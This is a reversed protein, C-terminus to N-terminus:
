TISLKLYIHLMETFANRFVDNGMIVNQPQHVALSVHQEKGCMAGGNLVVRAYNAKNICRATVHETAVLVGNLSM